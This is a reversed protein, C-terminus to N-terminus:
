KKYKDLIKTPDEVAMAPILDYIKWGDTDKKFIYYFNMNMNIDPSKFDEIIYAYGFDGEVKGFKYDSLKVSTTLDESFIIVTSEDEKEIYMRVMEYYPSEPYTIVKYAEYDFEEKIRKTELLLNEFVVEEKVENKSDTTKKDSDSSCGALLFVMSAIFIIKKM